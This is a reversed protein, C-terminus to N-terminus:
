VISVMRDSFRDRLALSLSKKRMPMSANALNGLPVLASASNRSHSNMTAAPWPIRQGINRVCQRCAQSRAGLHSAWKLLLSGCPVQHKRARGDVQQRVQM